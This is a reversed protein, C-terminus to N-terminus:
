EFNRRVIDGCSVGDLVEFWRTSRRGLLVPQMERTGDRWIQCFATGGLKRVASPPLVVADTTNTGAASEVTGLLQNPAVLAGVRVEKSLWLVGDCSAVVAACALQERIRNLRDVNLQHIRDSSERRSRKTALQSENADTVDKLRTEAEQVKRSLNLQEQNGMYKQFMTFERMRAGQHSRAALLKAQSIALREQVELSDAQDAVVALRLSEYDATLQEVRKTAEDARSKLYKLKTEYMGPENEHGFAKEEARALDLQLQAMLLDTRGRSQEFDYEITAQARDAMSRAVAIEARFAAEELESADLRLIVDGKKVASGNSTVGIVKATSESRNRIERSNDDTDSTPPMKSKRVVFWPWQNPELIVREGEALGHRVEAMQTGTMGVTVLRCDIGDHTVVFCSPQGSERNLASNPIILSELRDEEMPKDQASTVRLIEQGPYVVDGLQWQRSSTVIGECKAEVMCLALQKKLHRLRDKWKEFIGKAALVQAQTIAAIVEAQHKGRKLEHTALEFETDFRVKQLPVEYSLLDRRYQLDALQDLKRQLAATLLFSDGEHRLINIENKVTTIEPQLEDILLKMRDEVQHSRMQIEAMQQKWDLAELIFKHHSASYKGESDVEALTAEAEWVEIFAEDIMRRLKDVSFAVLLDGQKVFQGEEVIQSLQGCGQGPFCDEPCIVKATGDVKWDVHPSGLKVRGRQVPYLAPHPEPLDCIKAVGTAAKETARVLWIAGGTLAALLVISTIMVRSM